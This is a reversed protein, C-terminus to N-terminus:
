LRELDAPGVANAEVHFPAAAEAVGDRKLSERAIERGVLLRGVADGEDRPSDVVRRRRLEVALHQRRAEADGHIGLRELVDGALDAQAALGVDRERRVAIDRCAGGFPLAVEQDDFLVEGRAGGQDFARDAGAGRRELQGVAHERKIERGVLVRAVIMKRRRRIDERGTDRTARRRDLAGVFRASEMEACRALQADPLGALGAGVGVLRGGVLEVGPALGMEVGAPKGFRAFGELGEEAAVGKAVVDGLVGGAHEEQDVDLFFLGALDDGVELDDLLFGGLQDEREVLKERDALGIALDLFILPRHDDPAAQDLGAIEFVGADALEQALAALGQLRDGVQDIEPPRIGVRGRDLAVEEPERLEHRLRCGLGERVRREAVLQGDAPTERDCSSECDIRM